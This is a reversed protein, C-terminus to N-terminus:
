HNKLVNLSDLLHRNSYISRIMIPCDLMQFTALWFINNYGPNVKLGSLRQLHLFFKHTCIATMFMVPINTRSRNESSVLHSFLTASLMAFEERFSLGYHVFLHAEDVCVFRLLGSGIIDLIFKKWEKDHIIKQLSTFLM